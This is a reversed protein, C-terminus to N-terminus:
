PLLRARYFGMGQAPTFRFNLTGDAGAQNTAVPTWTVPRSLSAATEVVYGAHPIGQYAAQCVGGALKPVSICNFGTGAAVVDVTVVATAFGGRGDGVTYTFTDQGTFGTRSTYLVNTGDSTVTGSNPTPSQVATVALPDGDADTPASAGGVIKLVAPCGSIAGMLINGAVPPTNASVRIVMGGVQGESNPGGPGQWYGRVACSSDVVAAGIRTFNTLAPTTGPDGSFVIQANAGGFFVDAYKGSGDWAWIAYLTVTMGQPLGSLTFRAPGNASASYFGDTVLPDDVNQSSYSGINSISLTYTSGAVNPFTYDGVTLVPGNQVKTFAGPAPEFATTPGFDLQLTDNPVPVVNVTRTLIGPVGNATTATYTVTYAGVTTVDVPNDTQV